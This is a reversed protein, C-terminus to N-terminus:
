EAYRDLEGLARDIVDLGRILDEESIVLPPGIHVGNFHTWPWVGEAQCLKTFEAM